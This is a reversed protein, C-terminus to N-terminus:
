KNGSLSISSNESSIQTKHDGFPAAAWGKGAQTWLSQPHLEEAPPGPTQTNPAKPAGAGPEPCAAKDQTKMPPKAVVEAHLSHTLSQLMECQM